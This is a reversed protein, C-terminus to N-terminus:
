PVFASPVPKDTSLGFQQILLGSTSRNVYWVSSAPRFVATDFKGDGDYDGPTPIDGTSGFQASYYSANESRLVFWDGTSPRWFAIDAKGDGTYDGPVPKSSATGFDTAFLGASSRNIWWVGNSPRFVAIDAKGDGDYDASVPIDGNLGFPEIRVGGSSKNIYWVGNSPRFVTSDAQGDGDYDAPIPIDGPSGFPFAYFSNDESRLIFWEGTSERWVAFDTKGDGTYDAPVIRDTSTGFQLASVSNDFSRQYWWEGVSPRFISIDTKGDGDFDFPAFKPQATLLRAISDRPIGGYTKFHGGIVLNGDTQVVLTRITNAPDNDFGSEFGTDLSGNSNLIALRNRSVGNFTSFNGGVAIKGNQLLALSYVIANAGSGSNFSTDLSGDANLRTVRSVPTGNFSTFAGGVLIKGDPQVVIDTVASNFGSGINFTTDVSGKENLRALYNLPASDVANFLGGILIKGDPQRAIKRVFGEPDSITNDFSGDSNLRILGSSGFGTFRDTTQVFALIKGDPLLSIDDYSLGGDPNSYAEFSDDITGDSNLRLIGRRYVGNYGNFFGALVIKGDPQIEFGNLLKCCSIFDPILGTGTNFSTDLTGDANFRAIDSRPNGNAFNFSGGALIKGDAQQKLTFVLSNGYFSTNFSGDVTGDSNLRVMGARSQGNILSFEGSLLIKGDTQLAVHHSQNNGAPMSFTNDFSGDANLRLLAFSSIGDNSFVGATLIKGDPQVEISRTQNFYSFSLAQFSTDLSGDMNLRKTSPERGNQGIIFNGGILIKEDKLKKLSYINISIFGDPSFSSDIAGNSELRVISIGGSVLIRGDSLVIIDEVGFSINFPSTFATDLSGDANLRRISGSMNGSVLIKGDPQLAIKNVSTSVGTLSTNFATDLTGDSNIRVISNQSVGNYSKFNGGILFKGDTQMAIDFVTNNPGSNGSNFTTDTTGDSNLRVLYLQPMENVITFYGGVLIKGDALPKAVNIM